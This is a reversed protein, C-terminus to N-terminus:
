SHNLYCFRTMLYCPCSFAHGFLSVSNSYGKLKLIKLHLYNFQMLKTSHQPKKLFKNLDTIEDRDLDYLHSEMLIQQMLKELSNPM